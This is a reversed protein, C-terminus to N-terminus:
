AQVAYTDPLLYLEYKLRPERRLRPLVKFCSHGFHMTKEIWRRATKRCNHSIFFDLLSDHDGADKCGKALLIRNRTLQDWQLACSISVHLYGDELPITGDGQWPLWKTASAESDKHWCPGPASPKFNRCAKCRLAKTAALSELTSNTHQSKAEPIELLKGNM